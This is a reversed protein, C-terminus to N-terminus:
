TPLPGEHTMQDLELQSCPSMGVQSLGWNERLSQLISGVSIMVLGVLM